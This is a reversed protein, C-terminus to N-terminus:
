ATRSADLLAKIVYFRGGAPLTRSRASLPVESIQRAMDGAISQEDFMVLMDDLTSPLTLHLLEVGGPLTQEDRLAQAKSSKSRLERHRQTRALYKARDNQYASENRAIFSSERVLEPEM